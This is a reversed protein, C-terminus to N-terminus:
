FSGFKGHKTFPISDVVEIVDPQSHGPLWQRLLPRIETCLTEADPLRVGEDVGGGDGSNITESTEASTSHHVSPPELPLPRLSSSSLSSHHSCSSMPKVCLLLKPDSYIAVAREV